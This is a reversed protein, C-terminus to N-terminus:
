RRAVASAILDLLWHTIAQAVWFGIGLLLGELIKRM